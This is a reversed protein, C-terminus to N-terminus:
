QIFILTNSYKEDFFLDLIKKDHLGINFSVFEPREIKRIITYTISLIHELKQIEKMKRLQKVHPADLM